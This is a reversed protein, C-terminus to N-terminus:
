SRIANKRLVLLNSLPLLFPARCLPFVGVQPIVGPMCQQVAFSPDGTPYAINADRVYRIDMHAAMSPVRQEQRGNPSRTLCEGARKNIGPARHLCHHVDCCRVAIHSHSVSSNFVSSSTIWYSAAVLKSTSKTM